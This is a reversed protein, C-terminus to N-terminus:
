TTIATVVANVMGMAKSTTRLMRTLLVPHSCAPWHCATHFIESTYRPTIVIASLVYKKGLSTESVPLSAIKFSIRLVAFITM